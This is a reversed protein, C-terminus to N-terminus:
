VLNGDKGRIEMDEYWQVIGNRRPLQGDQTPGNRFINMGINANKNM